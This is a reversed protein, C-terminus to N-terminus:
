GIKAFDSPTTGMVRKFARRFTNTNYYGSKIAVNDVTLSADALLKCAYEIRIRELYRSFPEGMQESFIQSFYNEAVNFHSAIMSVNLGADNFRANIYALINEKMKTKHRNKSRMLQECLNLYTEKLQQFYIKNNGSQKEIEKFDIDTKTSASIRILITHLQGLFLHKMSASLGQYDASGQVGELYAALDNQNGHYVLNVLKQEQEKGLLGFADHSTIDRFWIIYNIQEQTDAYDAAALAEQMSNHIEAPSDYEEGIGCVPIFGFQRNFEDQLKKILSETENINNFSAIIALENHDITHVMYHDQAMSIIFAHYIDWDGIPAGSLIFRGPLFRVVIVRYGKESFSLGAQMLGRELDGAFTFDNKLMKDIYLKQMYQRQEKLRETLVTNSSLLSTIPLTNRYSLAISVVLGVLLAAALLIIVINRLLNMDSRIADLPLLALLSLNNNGSPIHISLTKKGNWIIESVSPGESRDINIDLLGGQRSNTSALITNGNLIFTEGSYIDLSGAMMEHIEDANLLYLFAGWIRSTDYMSFGSASAPMSYLVPIYLSTKRQITVYKAPMFYAFYRRNFLFNGFEAYNMDGFRFFDDYFIDLSSGLFDKSYVVNNNRLFLFNIDNDLVNFSSFRKYERNFSYFWYMDPTNSGFPLHIIQQIQENFNLELVAREIVMLRQDLINRLISLQYINSEIVNREIIDNAQSYAYLTIALPILLVLIYSVLFRKFNKDRIIRLM